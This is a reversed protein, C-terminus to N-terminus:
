AAALAPLYKRTDRRSTHVRARKARTLEELASRRRPMAAGGGPDPPTPHAMGSELWEASVDTALAWARMVIPRYRDITGREYNSVTGRSVGILEAFQGQDLNLLERAKRLRDGVTWEPM